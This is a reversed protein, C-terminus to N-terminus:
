VKFVAHWSRALVLVGNHRDKSRVLCGVDSDVTRLQLVDKKVRMGNDASDKGADEFFEVSGALRDEANGM